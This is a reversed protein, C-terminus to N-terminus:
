RFVIYVYKTGNENNTPSYLTSGTGLVVKGSDAEIIFKYVYGVNISIQGSGDGIFDHVQYPIANANYIICKGGTYTQMSVGPTIVSLNESVGPITVAGAFCVKCPSNTSDQIAIADKSTSASIKGTQSFGLVTSGSKYNFLAYKKSTTSFYTAGSIGAYYSYPFINTFNNTISDSYNVGTTFTMEHLAFPYGTTTSLNGSRKLVTRTTTPYCTTYQYLLPDAPVTDGRTMAWTEYNVAYLHGLTGSSVAALMDDSTSIVNEFEVAKVTRDTSNYALTLAGTQSVTYFNFIIYATTTTTREATALVTNNNLLVPYSGNATSLVTPVNNSFTLVNTTTATGTGTQSMIISGGVFPHMKFKGGSAIHSMEESESTFEISNASVTFALVKSYYITGDTNSRMLVTAFLTSNNYKCLSTIEQASQEVTFIASQRFVGDTLTYQYITLDKATYLYTEDFQYIVDMKNNNLVILGDNESKSITVEDNIIDVPDGASFTVGSKVPYSEIVSNTNNSFNTLAAAYNNKLTLLNADTADQGNDNMFGAIAANMTSAQYLAKNNLSSSAIGQQVGNLRQTNNTYDTDSQMNVKNQDFIKFNNQAM